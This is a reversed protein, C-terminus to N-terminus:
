TAAPPAFRYPYGALMPRSRNTDKQVLEVEGVGPPNMEEVLMAIDNELSAGPPAYTVITIDAPVQFTPLKERGRIELYNENFEGHGSIVRTTTRM